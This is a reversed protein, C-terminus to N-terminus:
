IKNNIFLMDTEMILKNNPQYHCNLPRSFSFDNNILFKYIDNFQAQKEYLSDHSIELVIWKFKTINKECGKLIEFEHGQVDLKLLAKNLNDITNSNLAIFNDLTETQIKLTKKLSTDKPFFNKRDKGSENFSSVQSDTFINFNKIEVKSSLAKTLITINTFESLNKHLDHNLENNAEFLIIKKPRLIKSVSYSFQGINAGVDIIYEPEINLKKIAITIKYNAFSFIKWTFFYKIAEPYLILNHINKIIKSFLKIM